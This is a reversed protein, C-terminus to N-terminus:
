TLRCLQDATPETKSIGRATLIPSTRRRPTRSTRARWMCNLARARSRRRACRPPSFHNHTCNESGGGVEVSVDRLLRNVEIRVCKLKASLWDDLPVNIKVSEDPVIHFNDHNYDLSYWLDTEEGIEIEKYAGNKGKECFKYGTKNEFGDVIYEREKETAANTMDTVVLFNRDGEEIRACWGQRKKGDEDNKYESESSEPRPNPNYYFMKMEKGRRIERRNVGSPPYANQRANIITPM